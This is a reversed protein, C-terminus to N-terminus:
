IFVKVQKQGYLHGFHTKVPLITQDKSAKRIIKESNPMLFDGQLRDISYNIENKKRIPTNSKIVFMNSSKNNTENFSPKKM